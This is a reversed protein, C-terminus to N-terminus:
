RQPYTFPPESEGLALKPRRPEFHHAYKSHFEVVEPFGEGPIKDLLNAIRDTWDKYEWDRQIRLLLYEMWVPYYGAEDWDIIGSVHGDHILINGTTLDTHSFTYPEMQPWSQLIEERELDTGHFDNFWEEPKPSLLHIYGIGLQLLRRGNATEPRPSVLKRIQLLYDVTEKAYRDKEESNLTNYLSRLTVGPMRTMFIYSRNQDEWTHIVKPVPVTTFKSVLECSPVLFLPQPDHPDDLRVEKLCYLNGITWVGRRGVGYVVKLSPIYFSCERFQRKWGCAKCLVEAWRKEDEQTM